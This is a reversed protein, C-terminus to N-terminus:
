KMGILVETLFGDVFVSYLFAYSKTGSPMLTDQRNKKFSGNLLVVGLLAPALLFELMGEDCVLLSLDPAKHFHYFKGFYLKM